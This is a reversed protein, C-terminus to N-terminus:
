TQSIWWYSEDILLIVVRSWLNFLCCLAVKLYGLTNSHKKGEKTIKLMGIPEKPSCCNLVNWMERHLVFLTSVAKHWSYYSYYYETYCLANIMKDEDEPEKLLFSLSNTEWWTYVETLSCNSQSFNIM